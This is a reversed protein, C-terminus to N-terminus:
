LEAACTSQWTNQGKIGLPSKWYSASPYKELKRHLKIYNHFFFLTELAKFLQSKSHNTKLSSNKPSQLPYGLFELNNDAPWKFDSNYWTNHNKIPSHHPHHLASVALFYVLSKVQFVTAILAILWVVQPQGILRQRWEFYAAHCERYFSCDKWFWWQSGFNWLTFIVLM